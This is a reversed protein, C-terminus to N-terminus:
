QNVEHCSPCTKGGPPLQTGCHACFEVPKEEVPIEPVLKRLKEELRLQIDIQQAHLNIIESIGWVISGLVVSVVFFLFPQFWTGGGLLAYLSWSVGGIVVVGGVCRLAFAINNKIM